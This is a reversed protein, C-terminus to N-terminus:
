ALTYTGTTAVYVGGDITIGDTGIDWAQSPTRTVQGATWVIGSAFIDQTAAFDGSTNTFTGIVRLVGEQSLTGGNHEIHGYVEPTMTSNAGTKYLVKSAADLTLTGNRTWTGGSIEVVSNADMTLTKGASITFNQGGADLSDEITATIDFITPNGRRTISKFNGAAITGTITQSAGGDM